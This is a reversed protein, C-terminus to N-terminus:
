IPVLHFMDESMQLNIKSVKIKLCLNCYVEFNINGIHLDYQIDNLVKLYFSDKQLDEENNHVFHILDKKKKGVLLLKEKIEHIMKQVFMESKMM